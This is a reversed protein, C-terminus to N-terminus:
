NRRAEEIEGDCRHCLAVNEEDDLPRMEEDFHLQRRKTASRM